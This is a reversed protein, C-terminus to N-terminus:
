RADIDSIESIPKEILCKATERYGGVVKSNHEAKYNRKPINFIGWIKRSLFIGTKYRLLSHLFLSPPPLLARRSALINVVTVEKRKPNM